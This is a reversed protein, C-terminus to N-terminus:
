DCKSMADLDAAQELCKSYADFEQSSQNLGEDLDNVASQVIGFGICGMVFAALSLVIGWKSMTKRLGNLSKSKKLAIIGLVIGTVGFGWGVIFLIPVLAGLTGIIGAILSIVALNNSRSEVYVIQPTPAPPPFSSDMTFEGQVVKTPNSL